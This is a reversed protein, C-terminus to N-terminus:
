DKEHTLRYPVTKAAWVLVPAWRRKKYGNKPIKNAVPLNYMEVSDYAHVFMAEMHDMRRSVLLGNEGLRNLLQIFEDSVDMCVLCNWDHRVLDIDGHPDIDSVRGVFDRFMPMPMDGRMRLKVAISLDIDTTSM